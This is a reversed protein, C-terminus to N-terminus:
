GTSMRGPTDVVKVVPSMSAALLKYAADGPACRFGRGIMHFHGDFYGPSDITAEQLVFGQRRLQRRLWRVAAQWEDDLSRNARRPRRVKLRLGYRESVFTRVPLPNYEM